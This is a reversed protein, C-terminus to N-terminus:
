RQLARQKPPSEILVWATLSGALALGAAILMVRRFGAVFSEAIARKLASRSESSLSGPIVMAALEARQQQLEQKAQQPIDVTELRGDLSKNFSQFLVVGLVAVALLGAARSVANNIGSAIGTHSADVAGMVATTLPAVSVAMGLGLTLVAPFFTTWYGGGV